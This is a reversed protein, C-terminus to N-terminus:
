RRPSSDSTPAGAHITPSDPRLRLDRTAFNVFMPDAVIEHPGPPLGIPDTESKDESFYLNHDHIQSTYHAGIGWVQTGNDSFVQVGAHVVFINNRIINGPEGFTFVVDTVSNKPLVRIVTNNLITFDHGQWLMLFAQYDDSVNDVISVTHTPFPARTSELFGENRASNNHDLQVDHISDGYIRPDFEFAGGDAGYTGGIVIFDTIHNYSAVENSNSIMIAIPGWKKMAIFRHSDHLYNHTILTFRGCTHIGITSNKWESYQITAHDAGKAIFVDGMQLVDKDANSRSNAGDHFYLHDVVVYSGHIQFVNGNLLNPDPNTFQPAPGSGYATFTIPRQATGSDAIPIGGVYHSGRAFYITEGPCLHQSPFVNLSKWPRKRTGPGSDDAHPNNADIYHNTCPQHAQQPHPVSSSNVIGRAQMTLVPGLLLAMFTAAVLMARDLM